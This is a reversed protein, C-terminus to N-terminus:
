YDTEFIDDLYFALEVEDTEQYYDVTPEVNMLDTNYVSLGLSGVSLVVVSAFVFAPQPIKFLQGFGRLVGGIDPLRVKAGDQPMHKSADIIRASLNSPAEPMYRDKLLQDLERNDM